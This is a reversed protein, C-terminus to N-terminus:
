RCALEEETPVIIGVGPNDCVAPLGLKITVDETSAVITPLVLMVLVAKFVPFGRIAPPM